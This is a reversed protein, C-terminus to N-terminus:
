TVKREQALLDLRAADKVVAEAGSGYVGNEAPM